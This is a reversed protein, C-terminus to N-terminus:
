LGTPSRCSILDWGDVRQSERSSESPESEEGQPRKLKAVLVWMNALENELYAERQKSKDLRQQLETEKKDKKSIMAEYSMERERSLALERKLEMQTPSQEKPRTNRGNRTPGTPTKRQIPSHKPTAAAALEATLRENQNM